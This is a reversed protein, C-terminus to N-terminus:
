MFGEPGNRSQPAITSIHALLILPAFQPALPDGRLFLAAARDSYKSSSQMYLSLAIVYYIVVHAPMEREQISTKGARKLIEELRPVASVDGSFHRLWFQL